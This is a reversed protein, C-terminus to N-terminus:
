WSQIEPLLVPIVEEVWLRYMEGSPHLDDSAILADDKLAKLSAPFIDVYMVGLEESIEKNISNYARLERNIKKPNEEQGFPTAGYDPISLVLVHDPRDGALEIAKNLLFRFNDPYTNIDKGQYQDNVGILLSVFDYPPNLEADEIASRLDLTTWGTKAIIRPEAVSIDNEQLLQQLQVPWRQDADVSEGITYSDGLALYSYPDQQAAASVSLLIFFFTFATKRILHM